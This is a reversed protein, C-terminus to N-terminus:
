DDKSNYQYIIKGEEINKVDINNIINELKEDEIIFNIKNRARDELFFSMDDISKYRISIYIAQSLQCISDCKGRFLDKSYGKKEIRSKIIKYIRIRDQRVDFVKAAFYLNLISAILFIYDFNHELFIFM